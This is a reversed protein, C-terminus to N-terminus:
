IIGLSRKYDLSRQILEPIKPIHDGEPQFGNKDAVYRVSYTVSDPGIYSFYGQARLGEEDTGRNEIHGEEEANIGNATSYLYHYGGEYIRFVYQLIGWENSSFLNRLNKDNYVGGVRVPDTDSAATLYGYKSVYYGQGRTKSNSDGGLNANGEVQNNSGFSNAKYYGNYSLNAENNTKQDDQNGNQNTRSRTASTDKNIFDSQNRQSIKGKSNSYQNVSGSQNRQSIKGNTNSYQNVSGSQKSGSSQANVSSDQKNIGGQNSGNRDTSGSLGSEQDISGSQSTGDNVSSGQQNLSSQSFGNTKDHVSPEQNILGNQNNDGNVSSSLSSQKSGNTGSDSSEQNTLTRQNTEDNKSSNQNIREKLNTIGKTSSDQNDQNNLNGPNSHSGGTKPQNSSDITGENSGVNKGNKSDTKSLDIPKSSKQNESSFSRKSEIYYKFEENILNNINLATEVIKDFNTEIGGQSGGISKGNRDFGKSLSAYPIFHNKEDYYGKLRDTQNYYGSLRDKRDYYGVLRDNPDYYGSPDPKYKGSKDPVYLGSNLNKRPQKVNEPQTAQIIRDTTTQINYFFKNVAQTTQTNILIVNLIIITILFILNM